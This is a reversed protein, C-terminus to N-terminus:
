YQGRRLKAMCELAEDRTRGSNFCHELEKLMAQSIDFQYAMDFFSRQPMHMFDDQSSVEKLIEHVTEQDTTQSLKFSLVSFIALTTRVLIESQDFMYFDLVTQAYTFPLDISFMSFFWRVTYVDLNVEMADFIHEALQPM